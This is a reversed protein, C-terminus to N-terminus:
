PRSRNFPPLKQHPSVRDLVQQFFVEVKASQLGRGHNSNHILESVKNLRLKKTRYGFVFLLADILNSKGSGNPGVVASFRQHFPGITKKGAYSKFNTLEISQIMLRPVAGREGHASTAVRDAANFRLSPETPINEQSKVAPAVDAEEAPETEDDSVEETPTKGKSAKVPAEEMEVDDDDQEEEAPEPQSAEESADEVEQSDKSSSATAEEEEEPVPAKKTRRNGRTRGSRTTAKNSASGQLNEIVDEEVEPDEKQVVVPKTRTRRTTTRSVPRATGEEERAKRRTSRRTREM